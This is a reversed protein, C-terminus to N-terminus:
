EQKANAQRLLASRDERCIDDMWNAADNLLRPILRHEDPRSKYNSDQLSLDSVESNDKCTFTLYWGQYNDDLRVNGSKTENYLSFEIIGLDELSENDGPWIVNTVLLRKNEM